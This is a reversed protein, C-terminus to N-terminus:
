SCCCFLAAIWPNRACYRQAHAAVAAFHAVYGAPGILYRHIAWRASYSRCTLSRTPRKGLRRRLSLGDGRGHRCFCLMFGYFTFHHFRRRLLTFADDAENCGKATVATSINEANVCQAVSGCDGGFATCGALYGRWFRIVGRWLCFRIAALLLSLWVDM